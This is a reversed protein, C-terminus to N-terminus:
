AYPLGNLVFAIGIRYKIRRVLSTLDAMSCDAGDVVSLTDSQRTRSLRLPNKAAKPAIMM